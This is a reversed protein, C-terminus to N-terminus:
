PKLNNSIIDVIRKSSNGDWLPPISGKKCEGTIIKSIERSLLKPNQGVLVNTGQELTVPRETNERVTLCPVDLFTTEEQIGGSDTVVYVASKLLNLMDLYGLPGILAIGGKNHLVDHTSTFFSELNHNKIQKVTRPHALFIVPIDVAMSSIAELFSMLIDPNDVNGPRHMTLLGYKIPGNGNKSLRIEELTNLQDAKSLQSILTDIMTNGVFFIKDSSVGENKLNENASKETTFFLDSISDTLIRNLEEPMSRDFSRLGAEVHAVKVGMKKATIACAVTSNVDGVVIVLDPNLDNVVKEFSLMINATQFAHSGPGVNLNIRPGPIGLDRFFFESMEKSYHQGTHVIYQDIFVGDNKRNYEEIAVFIPAVKMFNPRAGVIHIIKKMISSM